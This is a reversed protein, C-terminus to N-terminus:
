SDPTSDTKEFIQRLKQVNASSALKLGPNWLPKISKRGVCRFKPPKPPVPPARLPVTSNGLSEKYEEYLQPYKNRLEQYKSNNSTNM